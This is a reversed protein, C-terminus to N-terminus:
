ARRRLALLGAVAAVIAVLVLLGNVVNPNKEFFTRADAPPEFDANLTERGLEAERARDLGIASAPLRAFDYAPAALGPAGYLIRYPPTFGEALLLPRDRALARVRLGALPADDGNVITVRM